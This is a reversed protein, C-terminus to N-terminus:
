SRCRCGPRNRFRRAPCHGTSARTESCRGRPPPPPAPHPATWWRAARQLAMFRHTALRPVRAQQRRNTAPLFPNQAVPFVTRFVPLTSRRRGRRGPKGEGGHAQPVPLPGHKGGQKGNRRADPKRPQEPPEPRVLQVRQPRGGHGQFPNQLLGDRGEEEQKCLRHEKKVGGPQRHPKWRGARQFRVDQRGARRLPHEPQGEQGRRQEEKKRHDKKDPPMGPEPGGHNRSEKEGDRRDMRVMRNFNPVVGKDAKRPRKQQRPRRTKAPAPGQRSARGDGACGEEAREGVHREQEDEGRGDGAEGKVRDRLCARPGRGRPAEEKQPEAQRKGKPHRDQGRRRAAGPVRGPHGRQNRRLLAPRLIGGPGGRGGRPFCMGEPGGVVPQIEHRGLIKGTVARPRRPAQQQQGPQPRHASESPM